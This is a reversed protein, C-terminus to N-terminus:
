RIAKGISNRVLAKMRQIGPGWETCLRKEESIKQKTVDGEWFEAGICLNDCSFINGPIM